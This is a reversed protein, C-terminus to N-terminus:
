ALLKLVTNWNRTTVNKGYAKEIVDMAEPTRNKPDLQLVSAVEGGTARVVRFGQAPKIAPHKAPPEGLFTIYLRTNEDVPISKFPASAILAQIETAPRILVPVQFKFTDALTKELLARLTKPAQAAADFALNGSALLTKVNTFGLKEVVTKLQAMPVKKNGGVNIGRLLAVFRPM